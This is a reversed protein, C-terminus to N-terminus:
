IPLTENWQCTGTSLRRPPARYGMEVSLTGHGLQLKARLAAVAAAVSIKRM